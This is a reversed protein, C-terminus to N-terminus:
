LRENAVTPNECRKHLLSCKIVPVETSAHQNESKAPVREHRSCAQAHATRQTMAQVGADM